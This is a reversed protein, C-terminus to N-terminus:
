KALPDSREVSQAANSVPRPQLAVTPRAAFYRVTVDKGFQVERYGDRVQPRTPKTTTFHRVTVDEAVYDVENPGVWIRKFASNPADTPAKGHAITRGRSPGDPPAPRPATVATQQQQAADPTPLSSAQRASADVPSAPRHEYIIWCAAIVLAAIVGTVAANMHFRPRLIRREAIVPYTMLPAPAPADDSSIQSTIQVHDAIAHLVTSPQAKQRAKGFMQDEVMAAMMRYARLESEGFTHAESFLVQLVGAVAHEHYIPLILLAQMEFQRCIEAVIRGDTQADEVRLIESRPQDSASVSLVATMQSGVYRTACGSGARYVLQDGTMLAIAVGSAHAVHQACAAIMQMARDAEPACAALSQQLELLAALSQPDIGSQQVAYASALFQQFSDRNFSSPTSM